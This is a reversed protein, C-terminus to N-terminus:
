TDLIILTVSLLKLIDRYGCTTEIIDKYLNKIISSSYILKHYPRMDIDLFYRPKPKLKSEHRDM